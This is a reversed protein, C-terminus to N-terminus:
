LLPEHAHKHWPAALAGTLASTRLEYVVLAASRHQCADVVAPALLALGRSAPIIAILLPM